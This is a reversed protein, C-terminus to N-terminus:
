RRRMAAEIDEIDRRLREQLDNLMSLSHKLTALAGTLYTTTIQGPEGTRSPWGRDDYIQDSRIQEYLAVTRRAPGVGFDEKLAAVCSEYQRLAATRDGTLYHLRMLRRHTREQAQDYRLIRMGYLIGSEYEQHAECYGMLKDLMALYMNLLRQREFLCWDQYWGELLDGRYLDVANQL